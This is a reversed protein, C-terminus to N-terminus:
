EYDFAKGIITWALNAAEGATLLQRPGKIWGAMCEIALTFVFQLPM